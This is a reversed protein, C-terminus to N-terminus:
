LIKACLAEFIHNINNLLEIPQLEVRIGHNKLLCIAYYSPQIRRFLTM